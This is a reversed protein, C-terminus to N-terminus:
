FIPGELYLPSVLKVVLLLKLNDDISSRITLESDDEERADYRARRKLSKLASTQDEEDIASMGEATIGTSLM